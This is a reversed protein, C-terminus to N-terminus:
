WARDEYPTDLYGDSKLSSVWRDLTNRWMRKFWTREGFWDVLTPSIAYYVKIFLRGYWSEALKFDRYRRLTWVEPCDYSGYVCTAVYCGSSSSTSSSSTSVLSPRTYSPDVAKIKEIIGGFARDFDGGALVQAGVGLKKALDAYNKVGQKRLDAAEASLEKDPFYIDLAEAVILLMTNGSMVRANLEDSTALAPYDHYADKIIMDTLHETKEKVERAIAVFSDTDNSSAKALDFVSGLSTTYEECNSALDNISTNAVKYYMLYFPAEWGNPDKKLIATYYTEAGVRDNANRAERALAYLEDLNAKM